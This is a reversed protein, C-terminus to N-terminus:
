SKSAKAVPVYHEYAFLWFAPDTTRWFKRQMDDASEFGM